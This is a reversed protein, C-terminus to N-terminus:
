LHTAIFFFQVGLDSRIASESWESSKRDSIRTSYGPLDRIDTLLEERNMCFRLTVLWSSYDGLNLQGRM